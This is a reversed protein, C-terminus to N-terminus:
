APARLRPRPPPPSLLGQLQPNYVESFCRLYFIYASSSLLAEVQIRDDSGGGGFVHQRKAWDGWKPKPAGYSQNWYGGGGAGQNPRAPPCERKATRGRQQEEWGAPDGGGAGLGSYNGWPNIGEHPPDQREDGFVGVARGFEEKKARAAYARREGRSHNRQRKEEDTCQGHSKFSAV